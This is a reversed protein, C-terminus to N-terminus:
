RESLGKRISGLGKLSTGGIMASIPAGTLGRRTQIPLRKNSKDREAAFRGGRRTPSHDLTCQRGDFRARLGRPRRPRGRATSSAHSIRPSQPILTTRDPTISIFDPTTFRYPRSRSGAAAKSLQSARRGFSEHQPCGFRLPVYRYLNGPAPPEQQGCGSFRRVRGSVASYRPVKRCPGRMLRVYDSCVASRDPRGTAVASRIQARWQGRAARNAAYRRVKERRHRNLLTSVSGSPNAARRARARFRPALATISAVKM